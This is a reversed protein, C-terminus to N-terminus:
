RGVDDDNDDINDGEEDSDDDEYDDDDDDANVNDIEDCAHDDLGVNQDGDNQRNDTSCDISYKWVCM